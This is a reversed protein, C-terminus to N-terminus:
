TSAGYSIATDQILNIKKAQMCMHVTLTSLLFANQNIRLISIM